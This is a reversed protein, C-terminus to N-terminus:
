AASRGKAVESAPLVPAVHVLDPLWLVVTVLIALRLFLWRPASTVRTVIPWAAGAIVVGIVTLKAYDSFQFHQYGKTGPFIAEGVVVLIADAVLCGVISAITALVVRGPLPQRHSPSFDLSVLSAAKKLVTM